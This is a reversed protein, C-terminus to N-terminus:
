AAKKTEFNGASPYCATVKPNTTLQKIKNKFFYM